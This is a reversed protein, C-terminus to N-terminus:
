RYHAWVDAAEYGVGGTTLVELCVLAVQVRATTATACVAAAAGDAIVAAAHPGELYPSM